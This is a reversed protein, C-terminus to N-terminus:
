KIFMTGLRPVGDLVIGRTYIEYGEVKVIVDKFVQSFPVRGNLEILVRRVLNSQGGVVVLLEKFNHEANGFVHSVNNEIKMIGDIGKQIAEETYKAFEGKLEWGMIPKNKPTRATDRSFKSILGEPTAMYQDLTAQPNKALYTLARTKAVSYLKECGKALLSQAKMSVALATGARIGDRLSIQKNKLADILSSIPTIYGDWTKQAQEPNIVANVTLNLVGYIIKGLQYALLYERAVVSLTASAVTQLPNNMAQQGVSLLGDRAGELVAKGCDFLTYCFDAIMSAHYTLGIRNYTQAADICYALAPQYEFIPSDPKLQVTREILDVCEQHIVQQLQNGYCTHYPGGHVDLTRLLAVAEKSLNYSKQTYHIKGQKIAAEAQSRKIFRSGDYTECDEYFMRTDDDVLAPQLSFNNYIDQKFQQQVQQAEQARRLCRVRYAQTCVWEQADECVQAVAKAFEADHEFQAAIELIYDRYVYLSKLFERFAHSNYLDWRRMEAREYLLAKDHQNHLGLACLKQHFQNKFYEVSRERVYWSKKFNGHFGSPLQSPLITQYANSPGNLFNLVTCRLFVNHAADSSFCSTGKSSRTPAHSCWTPSLGKYQGLNERVSLASPSTHCQGDDPRFIL